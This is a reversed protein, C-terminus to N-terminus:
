PATDLVTLASPSEDEDISELTVWLRPFAGRSVGVWLEVEGPGTFTGASVHLSDRSFWFEYVSGAPAPALGEVTLVVRTGAPENWGEVVGAATPAEATGAIPVKWDAGPARSLAWITVVAVLVAAISAAALVPTRRSWRRAEMVESVPTPTSILGVVQEELLPGPDEWLPSDALLRRAGDLTQQDSQCSSCGALHKLEVPGEQGALYVAQFQDCNM